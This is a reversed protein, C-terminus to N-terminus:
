IESLYAHIQFNIKEEFSVLFIYNRFKNHRLIM